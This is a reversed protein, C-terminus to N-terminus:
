PPRFFFQLIAMHHSIWLFSQEQHNEFSSNSIQIQSALLIMGSSEQHFFFSHSFPMKGGPSHPKHLFPMGAFYCRQLIAKWHYLVGHAITPTGNNHNRRYIVGEKEPPEWCFELWQHHVISRSVRCTAPTSFNQIKLVKQDSICSTRNQRLNQM